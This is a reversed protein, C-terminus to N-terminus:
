KNISLIKDALNKNGRKEKPYLSNCFITLMWLFRKRSQKQIRMSYIYGKLSQVKCFKIFGSVKVLKNTQYRYYSYLWVLIITSKIWAMMHKYMHNYYCM